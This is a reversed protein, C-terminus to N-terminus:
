PWWASALGGQQLGQSPLQAIVIIQLYTIGPGSTLVM